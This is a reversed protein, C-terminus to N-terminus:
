TATFLTDLFTNPALFCQMQVAIRMSCFSWERSGSDPFLNSPPLSLATTLFARELTLQIQMLVGGKCGRLFTQLLSWKQSICFIRIIIINRTSLNVTPNESHLKGEGTFNWMLHWITPFYVGAGWNGLLQLRSVFDLALWNQQTAADPVWQLTSVSISMGGSYQHTFCLSPFWLSM